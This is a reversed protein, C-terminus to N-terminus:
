LAYKLGIQTSFRWNKVSKYDNLYTSFFRNSYYGFFTSQYFKLRNGVAFTYGGSLNSYTDFHKTEAHVKLVSFQALLTPGLSIISKNFFNYTTSFGFVPFFRKQFVTRNIGFGLDIKCELKNFQTGYQALFFFDLENYYLGTGVNHTRETQALTDFTSIMLVVVLIRM